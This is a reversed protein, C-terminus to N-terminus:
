LYVIDTFVVNKIHYTKSKSKLKVQNKQCAKSLNTSMIKVQNKVHKPM